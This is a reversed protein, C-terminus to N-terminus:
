TFVQCAGLEVDGLDFNLTDGMQSSLPISSNLFIMDPDLIVDVYADEAVTTGYNCYQVAYTSEFCRRLFHRVLRFM